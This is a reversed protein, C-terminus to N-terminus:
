DEDPFPTPEPPISALVVADGQPDAWGLLTRGDLVASRGCFTTGHETGYRNGAVLCAQTGHLRWAWYNWVKIHQELWNTPFALVRVDHQALHEIFADDNLDMCIGACCLLGEKSRWMPYPTDGPEAWTEDAEFLLRKRYFLPEEQPRCVAASNFLRGTEPEIEPWGFCLTLDHKEAEAQFFKVSRGQRDECYTRVNEPGSFIYGSTCMEPLVVLEPGSQAAQDILFLLRARNRNPQGWEPRFQVAAVLV